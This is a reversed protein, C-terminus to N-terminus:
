YHCVVGFFGFRLDVEGVGADAGCGDYGKMRDRVDEHGDEEVYSAPEIGLPM